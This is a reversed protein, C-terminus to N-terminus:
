NAESLEKALMLKINILERNIEKLESKIELNYESQSKLKLTNKNVEHWLGVYSIAAGFVACLAFRVNEQSFIAHIM